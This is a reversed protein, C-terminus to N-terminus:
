IWIDYAYSHTNVCNISCYFICLHPYINIYNIIRKKCNACFHVKRRIDQLVQKMKERHHPNFESILIQLDKPLKEISKHLSIIKNNM